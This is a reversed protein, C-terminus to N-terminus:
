TVDLPLVLPCWHCVPGGRTDTVWTSPAHRRRLCSHLASGSKRSGPALIAGLVSMCSPVSRRSLRPQTLSTPCPVFGSDRCRVTVRCCSARAGACGARSGPASGPLSWFRPCRSTDVCLLGVWSKSSPFCCKHSLIAPWSASTRAKLEEPFSFCLFSFYRYFLTVRSFFQKTYM